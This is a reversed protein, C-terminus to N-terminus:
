LTVHYLEAVKGDAARTGAESSGGNGPAGLTFTCDNLAPDEGVVVIGVSAGGAGAGGHGGRSGNGGRGGAKGQNSTSVTGSATSSDGGLGPDGGQQGPSGKGGNGGDGGNGTYFPSWDLVVRSDVIVLAISGGGAGGAMGAFGACGGYGGQGGGGGRSFDGECFGQNTFSMISAGGSGGKGPLGRNGPSGDTGANAAVYLGDLILGFSLVGSVGDSAAAGDSGDMSATAPEGAQGSSGNVTDGCSAGSLWANAGDGGRGGRNRYVGYPDTCELLFGAGGTAAQQCTSSLGNREKCTALPADSGDDGRPAKAEGHLKGDSGTAGRAGDAARFEVRSFHVNSSGIVRAAQSSESAEVGAPARLAFRDVVVDGSVGLVTLPVGQDPEVSAWDSIRRWGNDCDYGGYVGVAHDIVVNEAYSGNCVYVDKGSESALEIAHGLTQVPEDMTGAAADSGDNAVFVARSADGDIGDCNTDTFDGDPEDDTPICEPEPEQEPGAGAMGAAGAAGNSPEDEREASTGGGGGTNGKPKADGEDTDSPAGAAGAGSLAEQQGPKRGEEGCGSLSAVTVLGLGTFSIARVLFNVNVEM